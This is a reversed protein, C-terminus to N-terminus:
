AKPAAALVEESAKDAFKEFNKNFLGALHQAM